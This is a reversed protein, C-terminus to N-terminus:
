SGETESAETESTKAASEEASIQARATPAGIALWFLVMAIPVVRRLSPRAITM